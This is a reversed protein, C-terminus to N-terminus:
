QNNLRFWNYFNRIGQEITVSPAYGLLQKAKTIDAYTIDVDGPKKDIMNINVPVEAVEKIIKILENLSVPYENGLNVIEFVNDNAMLYNAALNIGNVIDSVYTYDRSTSGDGYLQIPKNSNILKFFKHIALDPRQGPGYVTFLRLCIIDIGTLHHMTKCLLEGAKKTAAYPSIPEDTKASELFPVKDTNGYVSSSSAFVLKKIRKNQMFNLIAQTGQINTDIYGSPDNISPQIGAKAALHIVCDIDDPMGTSDIDLISSKFFSFSTYKFATNLNTEKIAKPYFDDFNDIGIVQLGAGLLQNILNSGIFGAAGTVLIKKM